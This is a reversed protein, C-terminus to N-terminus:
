NVRDTEITSTAALMAVGARRPIYRSLPARLWSRHGLEVTSSKLAAPKACQTENRATPAIIRAIAPYQAINMPIDCTHNTGGTGDALKEDRGLGM